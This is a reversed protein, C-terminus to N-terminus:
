AVHQEARLVRMRERKQKLRAKRQADTERAARADFRKKSVARM